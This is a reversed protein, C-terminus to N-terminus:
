SHTHKHTHASCMRRNEQLVTFISAACNHQARLGVVLAVITNCTDVSLPQAVATFITRATVIFLWDMALIFRATVILELTHIVGTDWAM